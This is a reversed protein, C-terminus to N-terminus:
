LTFIRSYVVWADDPGSVTFRVAGRYEPGPDPMSLEASASEGPPVQQPVPDQTCTQERIPQWGEITLGEVSFSGCSVSIAQDGQNSVTLRLMEDGSVLVVEATAVVDPASPGSTSTCALCTLLVAVIFFRPM